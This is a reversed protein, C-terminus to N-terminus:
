ELFTSSCWPYLVLDLWNLEIEYNFFNFFHVRPINEKISNIIPDRKWFKDTIFSWSVNLDATFCCRFFLYILM